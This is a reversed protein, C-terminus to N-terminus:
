LLLCVGGLYVSKLINFQLKKTKWSSGNVPSLMGEDESGGVGAVGVVWNGEKGGWGRVPVTSPGDLLRPATPLM